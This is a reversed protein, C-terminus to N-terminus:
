YPAIPYAESNIMISFLRSTTSNVVGTRFSARSTGNERPQYVIDALEWDNAGEVNLLAETQADDQFDEITVIKYQIAM